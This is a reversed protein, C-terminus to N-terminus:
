RRPSSAPKSSRPSSIAPLRGATATSGSKSGAKAKRPTGVGPKKKATASPGAAAKPSGSPPSGRFSGGGLAWQSMDGGNATMLAVAAAAEQAAQAAAVAAINQPEYKDKLAQKEREIPEYLEDYLLVRWNPLPIGDLDGSWPTDDYNPADGLENLKRRRTRAATISKLTLPLIPAANKQESATDDNNQRHSRAVSRTATTATGPASPPQPITDSRRM